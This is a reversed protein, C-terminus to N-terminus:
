MKLYFAGTLEIYERTFTGDRHAITLENEEYSINDNKSLLWLTRKSAAGEVPIVHTM